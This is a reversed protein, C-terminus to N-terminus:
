GRIKRVKLHTFQNKVPESFNMTEFEAAEKTHNPGTFIDGTCKHYQCQDGTFLFGFGWRRWRRGNRKNCRRNIVYDKAIIGADVAL